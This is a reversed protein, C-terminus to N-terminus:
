NVSDIQTIAFDFAEKVLQFAEPSGGKDPHTVMAKERYSKRIQEANASQSVGLVEYWEKKVEVKEPIGTFGTFARDLFDSVGWREMGRLAEIGKGLAYINEWIKNYQDCCMAIDKGKYKFYIAVGPDDIKRSMWDSYLMGDKRLPINTSVILNSGGLKSVESRLFRQAKDMTVKFRSHIRSNTRKYGIPWHLPFAEM